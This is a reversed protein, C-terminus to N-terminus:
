FRFGASIHWIGEDFEPSYAYKLEIPGLFTELGYGLSYGTYDIRDIWQGNEFLDDGVNAINASLIVHNKRAFEYDLDLGSKLYTNGRASLAELGLMPIFNNTPVFGYGGLVFDFSETTNSGIALGGGATLYASFGSGFHYAYGMTAKAISFPEFSENLGEGVWYWHFDGDFYFGSTPFFKDDLTDYKLVGYTSYYHTNEFLTRPIGDEDLGITESLYRLWKHEVGLGLQFVRRFVTQVFVQNTLDEYELGIENLQFDEPIEIEADIFDLGINKEFYRYKSSLGISWYYGKDIYYDLNYRINDGVIFDFSVVDNNTFIRKQTLNILAASKYLDDYHAALRLSTQSNSERVNFVLRYHDQSAEVNELKYDIGSFNGTASLNNVGDSFDSYNVMSPIQLKLKGLIYSRTYKENGNILVEEIFIADDNNFSVEKAESPHQQKAIAELEDFIGKMADEGSAIIKAGEDFSVVSFDDIKPNIYIDTKERKKVMGEITRYNNIQLLVDLASKLNDRTRLSDQVDVGIVVDAGMARVEDVPYNNVVGGDVYVTSDIIVPSFLSPLAGSATIARPLYGHDLIVQKGKEVDTAVCIFPIPLKNFDDVDKVHILLRSLLNYVNQGKSIGSPFRVKFHDFPFTLAYKESDEKEYFTKASRPVNDQILTEFDLSNFISDLQHASYGSAYLAGIIAGMSTGGIYDIRVGAKEIEKLVGIHALGKAGGGSLVLGVKIDKKSPISDQAWGFATLLFILIYCLPKV